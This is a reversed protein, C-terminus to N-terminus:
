ISFASTLWPERATAEGAVLDTFKWLPNARIIKESPEPEIRSCFKVKASPWIQTRATNEQSPLAAVPV